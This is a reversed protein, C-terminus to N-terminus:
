ISVERAVKQLQEFLEQATKREAEQKAVRIKFAEHQKAQWQQMAQVAETTKLDMWEPLNLAKDGLKHCQTSSWEFGHGVTHLSDSLAKRIM